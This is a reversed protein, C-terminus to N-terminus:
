DANSGRCSHNLSDDKLGVRVSLGKLKDQKSKIIFTCQVPCRPDELAMQQQQGDFPSKLPLSPAEARDSPIPPFFGM